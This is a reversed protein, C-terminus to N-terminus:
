TLTTVQDAMELLGDQLFSLGSSNKLMKELKGPLPLAPFHDLMVRPPEQCTGRVGRVDDPTGKRKKRTVVKWGDDSNLKNSM